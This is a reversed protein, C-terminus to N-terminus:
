NRSVANWGRAGGSRLGRIADSFIRKVPQSAAGLVVTLLQSVLIDPLEKAASGAARKASAILAACVEQAVSRNSAVHAIAVGLTELLAHELPESRSKEHPPTVIGAEPLRAVLDLVTSKGVGSDGTLLCVSSTDAALARVFEDRGVPAVLPVDSQSEQV